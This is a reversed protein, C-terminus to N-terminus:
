VKQHRPWCIAHPVRHGQGGELREDGPHLHATLNDLPVPEEGSIRGCLGVVEYDREAAAHAARRARVDRSLEAPTILLLRPM